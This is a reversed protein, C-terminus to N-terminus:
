RRSAFWQRLMAALCGSQGGSGVVSCSDPRTFRTADEMGDWRSGWATNGAESKERERLDKPIRYRETEPKRACVVIEDEQGAPCKDEGYVILRTERQPPAEDASAPAAVAALILLCSARGLLKLKTSEFKCSGWM